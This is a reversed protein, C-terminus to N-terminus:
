YKLFDKRLKAGLAFYKNGLGDKHDINLRPTSDFGGMIKNITEKYLSKECIDTLLLIIHTTTYMKSEGTLLSGVACCWKTNKECIYTFGPILLFGEEIKKDIAKRLLFELQEINDEELAKKVEEKYLVEM